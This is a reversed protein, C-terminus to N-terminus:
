DALKKMIFNNIYPDPKARQAGPIANRLGIILDIGKKFKAPDNEKGLVEALTSTLTFKEQSLPLKEYRGAVFDFALPDGFNTLVSSIAATLRGKSTLNMQKRAIAIAAASDIGSLAELAAGAVSYSSDDTLQVLMSRLTPDESKALLDIAAARVAKNPDSGAITKALAYVEPTPTGTQYQELAELRIAYFPDKLALLRIAQASTDISKGLAAALAEDRDAYTGAYKFQHLYQALTKNDKKTCLLIKDGDVNILSPKSNVAFSFTDAKNEMWVQQRKKTTGEYIDIFFTLKFIKDGSQTQKIYVYARKTSDNYGYNIDLAPHGSGFYWQNFFWNLDKGTVKEFALRLHHASGTGLKNDTLYRNLSAFFADDGVFNRLMHLIRGGKEYSVNDFMDEKDAYFFRVLDKKSGGSRLYTQM